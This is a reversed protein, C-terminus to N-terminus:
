GSTTRRHQREYSVVVSLAELTGIRRLAAIGYSAVGEEERWVLDVLPKVARHDGIRGLADAAHCRVGPWNDTLSRILAPVASPLGIRGLSIVASTRVGICDDLLTILESVSQESHFWGLSCAAEDRVEYEPDTLASVLTVFSAMTQFRRLGGLCNKRVVKDFHNAENILVDVADCIRALAESAFRRVQAENDQLAKILASASSLDGIEKLGWAAHWRVTPDVDELAKIFYPNAVSNGIKMLAFCAGSRILPDQENMAELLAPMALIGIDCLASSAEYRVSSDQDRLLKILQPIASVAQEHLGGLAEIINQKFWSSGSNVAKILEGVATPGGIRGLARAAYSGAHGSSDHLVQVLIPVAKADGIMGLVMALGGQLHWMDKKKTQTEELAQILLDLASSGIEALARASEGHILRDLTSLTTLLFPVAKPDGIQGLSYILTLLLSEQNQSKYGIRLLEPVADKASPGILGLAEVVGQVIESNSSTLAEILHPTAVSGLEAISIVARKKRSRSPNSLHELFTEVTPIIPTIVSIIRRIGVDWDEYLAVHQIDRLTEGAGITRDPIVSPALLVPIFWARDTPRKRLEDIALTLEENMYTSSRKEYEPSFCAVFYTGNRIAQRISQQWRHGPALDQRDLWITIDYKKLESCLREVTDGDERVYSVFIYSM